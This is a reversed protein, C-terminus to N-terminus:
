WSVMELIAGERNILYTYDGIILLYRTQLRPEHGPIGFDSEDEPPTKQVLNYYDIEISKGVPIGVPDILELKIKREIKEEDM